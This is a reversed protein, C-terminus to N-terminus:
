RKFLAQRGDDTITYREVKMTPGVGARVTETVVTAHGALVLGALMKTQFGNALMLAETVGNRAGALIMLARRQEITLPM